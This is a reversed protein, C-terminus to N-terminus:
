TKEPSKANTTAPAVTAHRFAEDERQSTRKEGAANNVGFGSSLRGGSARHERAERRTEM